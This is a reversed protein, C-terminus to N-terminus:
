GGGKIETVDQMADPQTVPPPPPTDSLQGPQGQEEQPHRPTNIHPAVVAVTALIADCEVCPEGNGGPVFRLWSAPLWKVVVRSWAGALQAYQERTIAWAPALLSGLFPFMMGLLGAVSAAAQETDNEPGTEPGTEPIESGDPAMGEESLAAAIERQIREESVDVENVADATQKEADM